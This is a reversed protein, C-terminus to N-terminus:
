MYLSALLQQAITWCLLDRRDLQELHEPIPTPPVRGCFAPTNTYVATHHVTDATQATATTTACRRGHNGSVDTRTGAARDQGRDAPQWAAAAAAAEVVVFGRRRRSCPHSPHVGQRPPCARGAASDTVATSQIEHAPLFLLGMPFTYLHVQSQFPPLSIRLPIIQIPFSQRMRYKLECLSVAPSTNKKSAHTEQNTRENTLLLITFTVRESCIWFSERM